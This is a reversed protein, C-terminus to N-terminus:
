VTFHINERVYESPLGKLPQFGLYEEAWGLHRRYWLDMHELWFPVWGLRTEAFFVQLKPYRDFVGSLVLQAISVSPPLGFNCLWELFPRRLRQMIEPVEKPSKFTPQAARAGTRSFQVHVTVPM